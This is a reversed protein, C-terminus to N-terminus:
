TALTPPDYFAGEGSSTHRSYPLVILSGKTLPRERTVRTERTSQSPYQTQPRSTHTSHVVPDSGELM